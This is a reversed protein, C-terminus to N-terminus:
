RLALFLSCGVDAGGAESTYRGRERTSLHFLRAVAVMILRGARKRNGIRRCSRPLMGAPERSRGRAKMSHWPQGMGTEPSSTAATVSQHSSCSTHRYRAALRQCLESRPIGAPAPTSTTLSFSIVPPMVASTTTLVSPELGRDLDIEAGEANRATFRPFIM